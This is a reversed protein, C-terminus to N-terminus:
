MLFEIVQHVVTVPMDWLNGKAIAPNYNTTIPTTESFSRKELSMYASSSYDNVMGAKLLFLRTPALPAIALSPLTSPQKVGSVPQYDLRLWFLEYVMLFLSILEKWEAMKPMPVLLSWSM